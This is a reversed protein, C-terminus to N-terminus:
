QKLAKLEAKLQIVYLTLEEIKQLLLADMQAVDIGSKVVEEASPVDPLHKNENIYAEVEELPKLQYDKAFVYDAWDGSNKVAVKLKETLIGDQVYLKYGAPTNVSSGIVVQNTFLSTGSVRFDGTVRAESVDFTLDVLAVSSGQRGIYFRNGDCGISLSKNSFQTTLNIHHSRGWGGQGGGAGSNTYIKVHGNEVHLKADPNAIGIGVNANTSTGVSGSPVYLTQANSSFVSCFSVFVISFLLKKM